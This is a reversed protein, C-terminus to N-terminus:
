PIVKTVNKLAESMNDMTGWPMGSDASQGKFKVKDGEMSFEGIQQTGWMRSYRFERVGTADKVMKVHVCASSILLLCCVLILIGVCGVYRLIVAEEKYM